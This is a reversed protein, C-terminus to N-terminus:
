TRTARGGRGRGGGRLARVRRDARGGHADRYRPNEDARLVVNPRQAAREDLRPDLDDARTVSVTDIVAVLGSRVTCLTVDIGSAGLDCVMCLAPVQTMAHQIWVLAAMATGVVQVSSGDLQGALARHAADHDAVLRRQPLAAVAVAVREPMEATALAARAALHVAEADLLQSTDTGHGPAHPDGIRVPAGDIACTAVRTRTSGLDLGVIM